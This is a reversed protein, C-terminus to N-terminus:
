KKSFILPQVTAKDRDRSKSVLEPLDSSKIKAKGHQRPLTIHIPFRERFSCRQDNESCYKM